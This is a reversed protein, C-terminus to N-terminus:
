SVYLAVGLVAGIAYGALAALMGILMMEVGSNIPNGITIRAKVFGSVFLVVASFALAAVTAQAVPLFLFPVLPVLSGVVAAVGIILADRTPNEWGDQRLRLEEEMMTKLWLDRNSTIHKVITNLTRGTFGKAAYIERVENREVQPIEKMERKERVLESEYFQRAAKSSTYGVAAMSISEAFTAALGAILVIRSDHTAAAVALIVGLVNVLGDQGGLIVNRLNTGTDTKHAEKPSHKTRMM